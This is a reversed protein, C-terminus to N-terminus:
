VERAKEDMQTKQNTLNQELQFCTQSLTPFDAYLCKPMQNFLGHFRVVTYKMVAKLLAYIIGKSVLGKPELCERPSELVWISPLWGKM